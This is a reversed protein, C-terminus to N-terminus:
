TNKRIVSEVCDSVHECADACAELCDYVVKVWENGNVGAFSGHLAIASGTLGAILAIIAERLHCDCQSCRDLWKGFYRWTDVHGSHVVNSKRDNSALIRFDFGYTIAGVENIHNCL